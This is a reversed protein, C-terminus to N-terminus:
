TELASRCKQAINKNTMNEACWRVYERDTSLVDVLRKGKYKGIPFVFVDWRQALFKLYGCKVCSWKIHPGVRELYTDDGCRPCQADYKERDTM